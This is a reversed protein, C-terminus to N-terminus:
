HWIVKHAHRYLTTISVGWGMGAHLAIPLKKRLLKILQETKNNQILSLVLLTIWSGSHTNENVKFRKCMVVYPESKLM